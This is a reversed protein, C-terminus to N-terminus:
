DISENLSIAEDISLLEDLWFETVITKCRENAGIGAELSEFENVVFQGCQRRFIDIRFVPYTLHEPFRDEYIRKADKAFDLIAETCAYSCGKKRTNCAIFPGEIDGTYPNSTWAVKVEKQNKMRPQLILYPMRGCFEEVRFLQLSKQYIEAINKCYKL